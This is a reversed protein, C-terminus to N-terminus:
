LQSTIARDLSQLPVRLVGRGNYPEIKNKVPSKLETIYLIEEGHEIRIRCSSAQGFGEIRYRILTDTKPDYRKITRRMPDTIWLRGRSDTCLDDFAETMSAKRYIVELAAKEQDNTSQPVILGVSELTDTYMIRGNEPDTYLGNAMGMSPVLVETKSFTGDPLVTFRHISGKPFLFNFNSSTIYCRGQDDFALGNIAPYLQTIIEMSELDADFRAVYGGQKKWEKDTSGPAIAIYLKGDPGRDIGLAYSGPKIQKHITLNGTNEGDLLYVHGGLSTVYLRNSDPDPWCNECAEMGEYFVAGELDDIHLVYEQENSITGTRVFHMCSYLPLIAALIILSKKM